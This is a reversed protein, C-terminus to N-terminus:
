SVSIQAILRQLSIASVRDRRYLGSAGARRVEEGCVPGEELARPGGTPENEGGGRLFRFVAGADPTAGGGAM